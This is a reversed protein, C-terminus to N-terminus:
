GTQGSASMQHLSQAPCWTAPLFKAAVAWKIDRTLVRRKLCPYIMGHNLTTAYISSSKVMM